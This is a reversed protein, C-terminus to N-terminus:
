SGLTVGKLELFGDGTLHLGELDSRFGFIPAQHYLYILPVDAAVIAAAKQFLAKRAEPDTASRTDDLVADLDPNDYKGVNRGGTSHLVPQVLTDLDNAFQPGIPGWSEFDGDATLQLTTAFDVVDLKTDFGAESSMLQLMEAVRVPLTRNPVLIRLPVPATHGAEALLAKAAEVDRPPIPHDANYFPSGPDVFQNAALYRGAFAVDVIAQRDLSLELARRVRVDQLPGENALNFMLAQNNPASSQILDLGEDGEITEYMAPDIKEALDVDGSQLNAFRVSDDPIIRFIIRDFAFQDALRYEPDKELVLNDQAVRSVFKYPGICVPARGINDGERDLAAPSLIIGIREALKGVLQAAPESVRIVVTHPDPTEIASISSVDSYRQTGPVMAREINRKVAASDFPTGDQFSADRVLNLTLALGDESWSWSEALSPVVNLQPDTTMLRECMTNLVTIGTQASNSVPDLADPDDALAIRLDAAGAAGASLCCSLLLAAVAKTLPM